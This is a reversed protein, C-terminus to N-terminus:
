RKLTEQTPLAEDNAAATPDDSYRLMPNGPLRVIDRAADPQIQQARAQKLLDQFYGTRYKDYRRMTAVASQIHPLAQERGCRDLEKAASRIFGQVRRLNGYVDANFLEVVLAHLTTDIFRAQSLLKQPTAEYYAQSAPPFHEPLRIRRGSRHRSRPHIALRELNLFIEVHHETLKVRLEKFRHIHPASYYDGDIAVYCDAHLKATKWVGPDFPALPLAKLAVKEIQEFRERRSVGFRSHRRNNLHEVCEALARNIEAMSTFCRRRYRFRVYRMLIKVLGEVIAKDKPHGPRAPVIATGYHKGLEAYAPNLDPDYLHCKLVGQKLCDPVTVAPVGGYAEFMRRHSAQWNEGKMDEAAWAFLLQSFGLGAVFVYAKHIEGTALDIWDLTDGAYDVEVREGPEFERATVTAQRYQPFKRYFQKWFNSYTTLGQAKEEWILKLPHGLGLDHIIQPWDLQAMWLPDAAAPREAPSTAEGDRIGRVTKRSCGLARAIERVTRGAALRRRIEDFREVTL